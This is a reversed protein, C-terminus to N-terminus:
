HCELVKNIEPVGYGNWRAIKEKLKRRELNLISGIQNEVDDWSCGHIIMAKLLPVIYQDYNIEVTADEFIEM